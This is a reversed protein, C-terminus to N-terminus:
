KAEQLIGRWRHLLRENDEKTGRFRGEQVSREFFGLLDYRDTVAKIASSANANMNDFLRKVGLIMSWRVDDDDVQLGPTQFIRIYARAMEKRDLLRYGDAAQLQVILNKNALGHELVGVIARRRHQRSIKKDHFTMITQVAGVARLASAPNTSKLIVEDCLALVKPDDGIPRAMDWGLIEGMEEPNSNMLERVREINQGLKEKATERSIGGASAPASTAFSAALIALILTTTTRM